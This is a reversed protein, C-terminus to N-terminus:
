HNAQAGAWEAPLTIEHVRIDTEQVPSASRLWSLM